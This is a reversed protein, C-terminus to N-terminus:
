IIFSHKLARGQFHLDSCVNGASPQSRPNSDSCLDQITDFNFFIQCEAMKNECSWKMSEDFKARFQHAAAPAGSSNIPYTFTTAATGLAAEFDALANDHEQM